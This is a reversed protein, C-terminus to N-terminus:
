FKQHKLTCKITCVGVREIVSNFCCDRSSKKLYVIKKIQVLDLKLQAIIVVERSNQLIVIFFIPKSQVRYLLDKRVSKLRAELKKM